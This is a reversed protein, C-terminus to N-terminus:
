TEDILISSENRLCHVMIDYETDLKFILFKRFSLGKLSWGDELIKVLFISLFKDKQLEWMKMLLFIKIKGQYWKLWLQLVCNTIVFLFDLVILRELEVERDVLIDLM